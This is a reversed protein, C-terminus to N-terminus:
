PNVKFLLYFHDDMPTAKVLGERDMAKVLQDVQQQLQAPALGTPHQHGYKSALEQSSMGMTMALQAMIFRRVAAEDIAVATTPDAEAAPQESLLHNLLPIARYRDCRHHSAIAEGATVPHSQGSALTLELDGSRAHGVVALLADLLRYEELSLRYEAFAAKGLALLRRFLSDGQAGLRLPCREETVLLIHDPRQPLEALRKLTHYTAQGSQTVLATVGTQIPQGDGPRRETVELHFAPRRKGGSPRSYQHLTYRQDAASDAAPLCQELLGELLGIINDADPPLGEPHLERHGIQEKIKREILEDILPDLAVTPTTVTSTPQTPTGHPWAALWRSGGLEELKDQEEQWRAKAWNIVDRPRFTLQDRTQEAFWPRGLPFLPDNHRQRSLEPLATFPALFEDLRARLLQQAAEQNIRRMAIEEQALRDWAAPSIVGERRYLELDTRLGATVVLLNPTHDLLTHLFRSLATIQPPDMNDVQDFCLIFPRQSYRAFLALAVMVGEVAQNDPLQVVPEESDDPTTLGIQKAEEPDLAEGMLWRVALAAEGEDGKGDHALYTSVFFRFLVDFAPQEDSGPTHHTHLRQVKRDYAAKLRDRGVKGNSGSEKLGATAITKVLQYLPTDFFNHTRAEVLRSVVCKLIYRPLREPSTQLNHLFVYVARDAESVWQYLRALLHSKGIGAEGLLLAGVGSEQRHAQGALTVLQRYARQHISQVTVGARQPDDVRNTTFPNAQSLQDFLDTLDAGTNARDMAM